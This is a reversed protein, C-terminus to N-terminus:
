PVHKPHGEIMRSELPLEFFFKLDSDSQESAAKEDEQFHCLSVSTIAVPTM